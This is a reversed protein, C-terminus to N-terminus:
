GRFMSFGDAFGNVGWFCLLSALRCGIEHTRALLFVCDLGLCCMWIPALHRVRLFVLAVVLCRGAVTPCHRTAVLCGCGTAIICRGAVALGCGTITLDCGTIIPRGGMTALSCGAIVLGCGMIVLRGTIALGCGM